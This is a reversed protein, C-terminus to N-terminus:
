LVMEGGIGTAEESVQQPLSFIMESLKIIDEVTQIVYRQKTETREAEEM